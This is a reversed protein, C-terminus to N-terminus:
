RTATYYNLHSFLCTNQLKKVEDALYIMNGNEDTMSLESFGYENLM